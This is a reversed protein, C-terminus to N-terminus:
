IPRPSTNRAATVNDPSDNFSKGSSYAYKQFRSGARRIADQNGDDWTILADGNVYKWTGHVNGLTRFADGDEKLTIDFNHGNGDGVEWKGVYRGRPPANPNVPVSDSSATGVGSFEVREIDALSVAQRHGDKFVIVLSGSTSRAPSAANALASLTILALLGPFVVTKRM